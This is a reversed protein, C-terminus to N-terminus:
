GIPITKDNANAIDILKVVFQNIYGNLKKTVIINAPSEYLYKSDNKKFNL